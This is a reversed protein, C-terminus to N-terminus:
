SHFVPTSIASKNSSLFSSGIATGHTSQLFWLRKSPALIGMLRNVVRNYELLNGLHRRAALHDIWIHLFRRLTQLIFMIQPFCPPPTNRVLSNTTVPCTHTFLLLKYFISVLISISPVLITYKHM